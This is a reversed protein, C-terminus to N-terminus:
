SSLHRTGIKVSPPLIELHQSEFCEENLGGHHNITTVFVLDKDKNYQVKVVYDRFFKNALALATYAGYTIVGVSIPIHLKFYDWYFASFHHHPIFITEMAASTFFHTKFVLQYPMVLGFIGFVSLGSYTWMKAWERIQYNEYVIEGEEFNLSASPHPNPVKVFPQDLNTPHFIDAELRLLRDIPHGLIEPYGMRDAIHPFKEQDPIKVDYKYGKDGHYNKTVPRELWDFQHEIINSPTFHKEYFPSNNTFRIVNNYDTNYIEEDGPFMRGEINHSGSYDKIKDYANRHIGPTGRLYPRDM